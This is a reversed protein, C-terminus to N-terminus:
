LGSAAPEVANIPAIALRDYWAVVTARGHSPLPELRVWQATCNEAPVTFNAAFPRWTEGSLPIRPTLVKASELCSVTWSLREGAAGTEIRAQGSFRYSGPKLHVLQFILPQADFSGHQVRLAIDGRLEDPLTEVIVGAASRLTWDYPAQGSPADFDGDVLMPMSGGGSTRRRVEAMAAVLGRSSLASYLAALEADSYAAPSAAAGIALTASLSLGDVSTNLGDLFERRWPPKAALLVILSRMARPDHVAAVRFFDFIRPRLDLRRRALTDAHAFASRYDGRELRHQMLWAHAPDDRLSWNGALTLMQDARATDGKEAVTLGLVRLSSSTFPAKSLAERALVEANDYRKASLEADAARSLVLASGPSMQIAQRVPFREAVFERVVQWGLWVSVVVLLTPGLERAFRGTTESREGGQSM